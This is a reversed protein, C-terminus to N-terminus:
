SQPQTFDLAEKNIERGLIRLYNNIINDLQRQYIKRVDLYKYKNIEPFPIALTSLAIVTLCTMM